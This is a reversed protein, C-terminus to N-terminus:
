HELIDNAALWAYALAQTEGDIIGAMFAAEILDAFQEEAQYQNDTDEYMHGLM